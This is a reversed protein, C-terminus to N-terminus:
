NIEDHGISLQITVHQSDSVPWIVASKRRGSLVDRAFWEALCVAEHADHPLADITSQDHGHLLRKSRAVMIPKPTSGKWVNPRVISITSAYPRLSGVIMGVVTYVKQIDESAESALGKASHWHSPMEIVVDIDRLDSGYWRGVMRFVTDAVAMARVTWDVVTRSDTPLAIVGFEVAGGDSRYAIGCSRISPDIAVIM